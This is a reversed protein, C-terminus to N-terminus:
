QAAERVALELLSLAEDERQDAEDRYRYAQRVTESIRAREAPTCEPIPFTRLFAPHYEQQKGGVSMSRLVRFAANSRLLAFLYAGSFDETGSLVRVFDQSFAHNLWSGTVFVSRGFVENEGLTGHAAILVTEDVQRIDSPARHPNIWRGEPRLWFAQRQGILRVAHPPDADFRKFRAGTRLIGGECIEGLTRHPVSSLRAFIQRARPSFNLARLTTASARSITFDLDRQQYHWDFDLIDSLGASTFLDRTASAIAVEFSERLAMAETILDDIRAETVDGIRPVPLNAVHHPEIHKVSTGYIGGKIIPVGLPSALFTYLYGARIKDPNAVVRMVDESCAHGQMSRRAYTVRGSTMGSRTVLTWGPELPLRSNASLARKTLIPIRSLDAQFIDASGLFPVGHEIDYTWQRWVRGPHFIRSTVQRLHDVHPLRDLFKRAAYAESVYPGPDLRSGQETLWSLRVPNDITALKV